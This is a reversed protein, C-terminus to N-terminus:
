RALGLDVDGYRAVHHMPRSEAGGQLARIASVEPCWTHDIGVAGEVHVEGVSRCLGGIGVGLHELQRHAGIWLSWERHYMLEEVRERDVGMDHWVTATSVHHEVGGVVHRSQVVLAHAGRDHDIAQEVEVLELSVRTRHNARRNVLFDELAVAKAVPPVPVRDLAGGVERVSAM